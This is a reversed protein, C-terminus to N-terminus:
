LFNIVRALQVFRVIRHAVHTAAVGAGFNVIGKSSEYSVYQTVVVLAGLMALMTVATIILHKYLVFEAKRLVSKTQM